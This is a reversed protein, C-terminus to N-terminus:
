GCSQVHMVSKSLKKATVSCSLRSLAWKWTKLLAFSCLMVVKKGNGSNRLSSSPILAIFKSVARICKLTVNENGDDDNNGLSRIKQARAPIQRPTYNTVDNVFNSQDTLKEERELYLVQSSHINVLM